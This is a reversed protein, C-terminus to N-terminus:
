WISLLGCQKKIRQAGCEGLSQSGCPGSHPSHKKWTQSYVLQPEKNFVATAVGQLAGFGKGFTFSSVSGENKMPHVNEIFVSVDDDAYPRFISTIRMIDYQKKIKAAKGKGVVIKQLPMDYVEAIGDNIVIAIAGNIGVDIGIFVKKQAM